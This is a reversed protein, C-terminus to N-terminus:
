MLLSSLFLGSGSHLNNFIYIYVTCIHLLFFVFSRNSADLFWRCFWWPLQEGTYHLFSGHDKESLGGIVSLVSSISEEPSLLAQISFLDVFWLLKDCTKRKQLLKALVIVSLLSSESWTWGYWHTGLRSASGYVPDWRGRPGSGLMQHGHETCESVLCICSLIEVSINVSM